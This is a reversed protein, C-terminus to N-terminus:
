NVYRLVRKEDCAIAVVRVCFSIPVISTLVLHVRLM